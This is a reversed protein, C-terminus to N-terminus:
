LKPQFTSFIMQPMTRMHGGDQKWYEEKWVDVKM